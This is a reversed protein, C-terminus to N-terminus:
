SRVPMIRITMATKNSTQNQGKVSIVERDIAIRRISRRMVPNSRQTRLHSVPRKQEKANSTVHQRNCHYEDAEAAKEM